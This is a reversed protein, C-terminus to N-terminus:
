IGLRNHEVLWRAFRLRNQEEIKERYEVQEQLHQKMYTLWMAEVESFGLSSLHAYETGAEVPLQEPKM